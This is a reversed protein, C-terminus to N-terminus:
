TYNIKVLELNPVSKLFDDESAMTKLVFQVKIQRIKSM